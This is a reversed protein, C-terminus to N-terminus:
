FLYVPVIHHNIFHLTQFYDFKIIWQIHVLQIMHYRAMLLPQCASQLLGDRGCLGDSM